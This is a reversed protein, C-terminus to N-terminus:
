LIVFFIVSIVGGFIILFHFFLLVRTCLSFYKKMEELDLENKRIEDDVMKWQQELM